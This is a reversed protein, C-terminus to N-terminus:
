HNYVHVDRQPFPISIGKEDFSLKVSEQMAYYVNWYDAANVWVRAVFNVSSDGLESVAVM